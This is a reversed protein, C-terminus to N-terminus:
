FDKYLLYKKRIQKFKELGPQWSERIAKEDLGKKIQQILIDNGALRNFGKDSLFFHDKDPFLSYANLLWKIQVKSDVKRLVQAESGSLNWGYCVQDKLKPDKAGETSHPSFKYLTKSYSPHGFIEFPKETGRGESLVTGEFFCTSPYWYVSQIEPLNPSPKVPLVYKSKHDYNSCKIVLFHFPTDKSNQAGKYYNYRENAAASLWNEGGLMMAYEGVTMGYVIPVPQMGVFSKFKMDLVPGDVYFGNPNPRDLILVPKRNEAAAEIYYQLSSIFTYFRVGVDQIDFIMVDVNELDEKSPKNHGGYLSIVPIGTNKYTNNTVKEGADASGSFGHEPGFIKVVKIGSSILTDILHTQGIMSTQNAFVGVAKGKLLPFYVATRDAGPIIKKQGNVNIFIVLSTLIFLIRM